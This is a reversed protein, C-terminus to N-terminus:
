KWLGILAEAVAKNKKGNRNILKFTKTDFQKKLVNINKRRKNPVEVFCFTKNKKGNSWNRMHILTGAPTVYVNNGEDVIQFIIDGKMLNIKGDLIFEDVSHRSKKIRHKQAEAAGLEFQESEEESVKINELKVVQFSPAKEKQSSKSSPNREGMNKPPNYMKSLRNLQEEGM